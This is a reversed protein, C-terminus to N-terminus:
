RVRHDEGSLDERRRQRPLVKLVVLTMVTLAIVVPLFLWAYYFVWLKVDDWTDGVLSALTQVIGM